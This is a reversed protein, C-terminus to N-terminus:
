SREEMTHWGHSVALNIWIYKRRGPTEGGILAALTGIGGGGSNKINQTFGSYNLLEITEGDMTADDLTIDHSATIGSSNWFLVNCDGPTFTHDTDPAPAVNQIVRGASYMWLAGEILTRATPSGIASGDVALSFPTTTVQLGGTMVVPGLFRGGGTHQTELDFTVTKKFRTTGDFLNGPATVVLPQTTILVGGQVLLGDAAVLAGEVTVAGDFLVPLYFRGTHSAVYKVAELVDSAGVKDPVGSPTISAYDVAAQMFGWLDNVWAAELPTGSGDGLVTVNRAKGFPYDPDSDITQAPYTDQPILM